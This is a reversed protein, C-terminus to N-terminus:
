NQNETEFYNELIKITKEYVIEVPHMQLSELLDFMGMEEIKKVILNKGDVIYYQKGFTLLNGLAELSVAIYKADTMKLCLCIIELIGQNIIKEMMIKNETSTLNCIAWIAEKQIEPEDNKVVQHLIPLFDHSILAEIQLQTGAAFNSLIWCTEKRVSRKENFITKSLYNLSGADLVMQTQLANGAVINGIIRLVPLQIYVMPYELLSILKPLIQLDLMKKISKKHNETLYSLIWCADVLFEM